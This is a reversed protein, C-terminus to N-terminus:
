TNVLEYSHVKKNQIPKPTFKGEENDQKTQSAYEKVKKRVSKNFSTIHQLIEDYYGTEIFAKATQFSLSRFYELWVSLDEHFWEKLLRKAVRDYHKIRFHKLLWPIDWLINKPHNKLKKIMCSLMKDRIRFVDFHLGSVSISPWSWLLHEDEQDKILKRTLTHIRGHFKKLLELVYWSWNHKIMFEAIHKGYTYDPSNKVVHRRKTMTAKPGYPVYYKPLQKEFNSM